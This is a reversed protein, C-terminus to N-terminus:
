NVFGIARNLWGRLFQVQGVFLGRAKLDEVVRAAHLRIREVALENVLHRAEGANAAAATLPGLVGDPRTGVIRQLAPISDDQGFLFTFDVLAFRLGADSIQEFGPEVLYKQYTIQAAEEETLAQVDAATVPKKRWGALAGITVGYKTPGGADAPNDTYTSGGEMLFIRTIIAEDAPSRGVGSM